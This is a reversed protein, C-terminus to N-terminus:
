KSCIAEVYSKITDTYFTYYTMTGKKTMMLFEAASMEGMSVERQTLTDFAKKSKDSTHSIKNRITKIQQFEIPNSILLSFPGSNEFFNHSLVNVESINTWDPYQKTGKIIDYAHNEDKPTVYRCYENGQLDKKGCLYCKFAKELFAEWSLFISMFCKEVVIYHMEESYVTDDCAAANQFLYNSNAILINTKTFSQEFERYVSSITSM